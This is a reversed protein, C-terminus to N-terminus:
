QQQRRGHGEGPGVRRPVLAVLVQEVKGDARADGSPTELKRQGVPHVVAEHHEEEEDDPHLDLVLHDVALQRAALAGHQRHEARESAHDNRRGDVEEEVRAPLRFSAPANRHRGVDGEDHRRESGEPGANGRTELDKQQRERDDVIKAGHRHDSDEVGIM